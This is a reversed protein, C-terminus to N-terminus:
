CALQIQEGLEKDPGQRRVLLASPKKGLCLVRPPRQVSPPLSVSAARGGDRWGVKDAGGEGPLASM